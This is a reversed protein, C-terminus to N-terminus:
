VFNLKDLYPLITRLKEAGAEGIDVGIYELSEDDTTVTKGYLEFSYGFHAQPAATKLAAYDEFPLSGLKVDSLEPLIAIAEATAAVDSATLASLDLSQTSHDYVQGMVSVSYSIAADPYLARLEELVAGNAPDRLKIERVNKLYPSFEKLQAVDGVSIDLEATDHSYDTTGVTVTYSVDVDPHSAIYAEIEEYCSSGSLDLTKLNKYKDLKGIEEPTMVGSLEKVSSACGCLLLLCILSLILAIKKM